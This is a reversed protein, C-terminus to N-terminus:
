SRGRGNDADHQSGQAELRLPPAAHGDSADNQGNNSEESASYYEPDLLPQDGSLRTLYAHSPRMVDARRADGGGGRHRDSAGKGSPGCLRSTLPVLTRYKYHIERDWDCWEVPPM